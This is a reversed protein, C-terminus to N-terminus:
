AKLFRLYFAAFVLVIGFAGIAFRLLCNRLYSFPAVALTKIYRRLEKIFDSLRAEYEISAGLAIWRAQNDLWFRKRVSSREQAAREEARLAQEYCNKVRQNAVKLM